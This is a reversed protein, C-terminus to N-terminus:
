FSWISTWAREDGEIRHQGLLPHALVGVAIGSYSDNAAQPVANLPSWRKSCKRKTVDGSYSASRRAKLKATARPEYRTGSEKNPRGPCLHRSTGCITRVRKGRAGLDIAPAAVAISLSRTSSSSPPIFVWGGPIQRRTRHAACTRRCITAPSREGVQRVLM